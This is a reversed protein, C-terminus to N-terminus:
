RRLGRDPGRDTEGDRVGDLGAALRLREEESLLAALDNREVAARAREVAAGLEKEAEARAKWGDSTQPVNPVPLPKAPRRFLLVAVGLFFALAAALFAFPKLMAVAAPRTEERLWMVAYTAVVVVAAVAVAQAVTVRAAQRCSPDCGRAAM